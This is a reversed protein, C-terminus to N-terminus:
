KYRKQTKMIFLIIEKHKAENLKEIKDPHNAMFSELPEELTILAGTRTNYVVSQNDRKYEINFKSVIYAM